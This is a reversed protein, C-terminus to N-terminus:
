LEPGPGGLAGWRMRPWIWAGGVCAPPPEAVRPAEWSGGGGFEGGTDECLAWFFCLSVPVSVSVSVCVCVCLRVCAHVCVCVSVFLRLRM